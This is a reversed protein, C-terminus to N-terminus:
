TTGYGYGFGLNLAMVTVYVHVLPLVMISSDAGMQIHILGINIAVHERYLLDIVMLLERCLDDQYTMQKVTKCIYISTVM